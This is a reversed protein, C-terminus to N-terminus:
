RGLEEKLTYEAKVDKGKKVVITRPQFDPEPESLFNM